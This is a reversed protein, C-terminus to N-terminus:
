FFPNLFNADNSTWDFVPFALSPQDIELFHLSLLTRLNLLNILSKLCNRCTVEQKSSNGAISACM